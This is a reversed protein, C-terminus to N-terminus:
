ISSKNKSETYSYLVPIIASTLLILGVVTMLWKFPMLFSFVFILCGGVMLSLGGVWHTKKWVMENQLTRPTRIGIFYNPRLTPLYNGLLAVLAGLLSILIHPEKGSPEASLSLLYVSLLSTFLGLIFRLSHYKGGMAEFSRKNDIAPIILMVLYIVLGISAPVLLTNKNGWDDAQGQMNFHIAVNDSIDTWIRSLYLYPLVAM